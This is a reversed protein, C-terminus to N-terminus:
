SELDAPTVVRRWTGGVASGGDGFERGSYGQLYYWPEPETEGKFSQTQILTKHALSHTYPLSKNWM